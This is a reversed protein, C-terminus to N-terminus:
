IEEGKVESNEKNAEKRCFDFAERWSSISDTKTLHAIQIAYLKCIPHTNVWETGKGLERAEDWIRSITDSFQHIIGSLNCASQSYIAFKYDTTTIHCEKKM